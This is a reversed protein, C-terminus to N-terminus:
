ATRTTEEAQGQLKKFGCSLAITTAGLTIRPFDSIVLNWTSSALCPFTVVSLLTAATKLKRKICCILSKYFFHFRYHHAQKKQHQKPFLGYHERVSFREQHQYRMCTHRLHLDPKLVSTGLLPLDVPLLQLMGLLGWCGCGGWRYQTCVTVGM